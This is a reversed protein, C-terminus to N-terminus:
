QNNAFTQAQNLRGMMHYARALGAYVEPARPSIRSARDLTSVALDPRGQAVHNDAKSILAMTAPPLKESETVSIQREVEEKSPEDPVTSAPTPEPTVVPKPFPQVPPKAVPPLSADVLPQM